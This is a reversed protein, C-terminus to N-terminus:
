RELLLKFNHPQRVVRYDNFAVSVKFFDYKSTGTRKKPRGGESAGRAVDM